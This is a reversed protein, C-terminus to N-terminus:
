PYSHTRRKKLHFVLVRILSHPHSSQNSDESYACALTYRISSVPEYILSTMVRVQEPQEYDGEWLGVKHLSEMYCANCGTGISIYLCVSNICCSLGHGM